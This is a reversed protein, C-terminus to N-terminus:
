QRLRIQREVREERLPEFDTIKWGSDLGEVTFRAEYQNKRTHIHGWHEVTGTVTWTCRYTFGGSRSRSLTEGPVRDGELIEVDHIRSVAGGQEEVTLNERIRLYLSELLPGAVSQDLADYIREEDRFDFARYLNRHLAAFLADAKEDGIGPPTALPHPVAARAYPLTAVAALALGGALAGCYRRNRRSGSKLAAWAFLLAGTGGALSALPVSLVPPPEPRELEALEVPQRPTEAEWEFVNRGPRLLADLREEEFPYVAPRFVPLHDDFYDWTFRVRRPPQRTPYSVIVGVRANYVSVDEEPSQRAFDRFEPGFFDLRDFAPSVTEGDIELRSHETLFSEIGDRAAHQEAVTMTAADEREIPLWRELTLLPILIEHRVETDTLYLYSYVASYSTIGLADERRQRLRRRAEEIDDEARKWDTDWDLRITHATRHSLMVSEMHIGHHFFRVGMEAPVAPEDGGFNQSVSLFEPREEFPFEFHYQISYSMLDDIHVGEDGLESFDTDVVEGEFRNGDRDRLQFYRMLFERHERAQEKLADTPFRFDDDTEMWYYLILDEVLMNLEATIRDDEVNVFVSTLSIPHADARWALGAFVLAVLGALTRRGIRRARAATPDPLSPRRGDRVLLSM